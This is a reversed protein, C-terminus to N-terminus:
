SIRKLEISIQAMSVAAMEANEPRELRHPPLSCGPPIPKLFSGLIAVMM